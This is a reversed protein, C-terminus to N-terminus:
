WRGRSGQQVPNAVLSSRPVGEPPAALGGAPLGGLLLAAGPLPRGVMQVSLELLQLDAHVGQLRHVAGAKIPKDKVNGKNLGFQTLIFAPTKDLLVARQLSWVMDEATLPNGSAFRRGPKLDFSYTKGDASVKWAQALDGLLRSPDAPDFGLLREYCNGTVEGTSIEFAEAPDLSIIDDFAAAQVLTDKPTAAQLPLHGLLLSAGLGQVASRRTFVAREM